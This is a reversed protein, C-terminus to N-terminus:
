IQLIVLIGVFCDVSICYVRNSFLLSICILALVPQLLSYLTTLIMARSQSLHLFLCVTRCKAPEQPAPQLDRGAKVVANATSLKAQVLLLAPRAAQPAPAPPSPVPAAPPLNQPLPLPLPLLLSPPPAPPPPSLATPGSQHDQSTRYSIM